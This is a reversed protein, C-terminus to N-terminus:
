NKDLDSAIELVTLNTKGTLINFAPNDLVFMRGSNLDDNDQEDSARRLRRAFRSESAKERKDWGWRSDYGSMQNLPKITHNIM